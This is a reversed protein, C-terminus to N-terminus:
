VVGAGAVASEAAREGPFWRDLTDVMRDFVLAPEYNDVVYRRGDVALAQAADPRDAIFNLCEVLEAPGHYVLGAGSRELHNRVVAGAGNAVVPTGAAMAELVTLSFSELASPQVYAAAAAMAGDRDHDSLLGLDVVAQECGVPPQVEGVGSTVLKLGSGLATRDLTFEAFAALLDQWGKGWERRGAYYVFPETLGFRARFGDADYAAPVPVPAGVVEQRGPPNCLRLALEREPETLFWLAGAGELMSRYIELHAPPEDHLCPMIVSHRSHVQSVAYTTWFMYPAFILARYRHGHDFVHHWLDPCRLSANVWRQQDQITITDGALIRNGIRDRDAPSDDMVTRFRRVVIGDDTRSSGPPFENAWTFHDRACTTLIEIPIGRATLGRAVDALVAEAGGIVGDGFRPPVLAVTGPRILPKDASRSNSPLRGTM